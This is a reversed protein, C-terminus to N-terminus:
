FEVWGTIIYKTNTLPPNGRHTHTFGAPWIVLKGQEAKERHHQYLFETEGGDAVDNLYLTYALVRNVVQKDGSECHWAHFGQGIETKQVKMSYVSLGHMTSLQPYNSAYASFYESFRATFETVLEQSHVLNLSTASTLYLLSDDAVSKSPETRNLTLGSKQCNEFHQIVVDCYQNSFANKFVGIFNDNM